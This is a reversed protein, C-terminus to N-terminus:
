GARRPFAPAMVVATRGSGAWAARVEAAVHGRLTSDVTKLLLASGAFRRAAQGTRTAAPTEDLLRTGLDVATVGPGRTTAAGPDQPPVTGTASLLIRAGHGTRRFPAAGDGASTLDDALIGIGRRDDTGSTM